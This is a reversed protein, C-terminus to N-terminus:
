SAVQAFSRCAQPALKLLLMRKAAVYGSRLRAVAVKMVRQMGPAACGSFKVEEGLKAFNLSEQEGM